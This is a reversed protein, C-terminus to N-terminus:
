KVTSRTDSLPPRSVTARRSLLLLRPRALLVPLPREAGATTRFVLPHDTKLLAAKMAQSQLLEVASLFVRLNTLGSGKATFGLTLKNADARTLM